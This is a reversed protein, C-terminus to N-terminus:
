MQLGNFHQVVAELAQILDVRDVGVVKTWHELAPM